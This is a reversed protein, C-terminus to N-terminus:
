VSHRPSWLRTVRRPRPATSAATFQQYRDMDDSLLARLAAAQDDTVPM